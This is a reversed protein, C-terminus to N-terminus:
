ITLKTAIRLEKKELAAEIVDLAHLALSNTAIQAVQSKAESSLTNAAITELPFESANEALDVTALAVNSRLIARLLKCTESAYFKELLDSQPQTLLSPDSTLIQM